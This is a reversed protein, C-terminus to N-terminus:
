WSWQQEDQEACNHQSGAGWCLRVARWLLRAIAPLRGAQAVYSHVLVLDAPRDFEDAIARILVDV